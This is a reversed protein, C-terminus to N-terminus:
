LGPGEPSPELDQGFAIIHGDLDRVDFERIGYFTEEPARPLDAGKGKLEGYLADADDIYVYAAWYQNLPVSQDRSQDLMITVTDRGVIAFCPPEGWIGAIEFGLVDRYFEASRVVDRVQLVASSRICRAANM